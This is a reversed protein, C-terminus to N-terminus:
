CTEIDSMIVRWHRCCTTPIRKCFYTTSSGNLASGPYYKTNLETSGTHFLSLSCDLCYKFLMVTTSWFQEFLQFDFHIQMFNLNRGWWILSSHGMQSSHGQACVIINVHGNIAKSSNNNAIPPWFYMLFTVNLASISLVRM